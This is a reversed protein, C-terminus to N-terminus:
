WFYVCVPVGEVILVNRLLGRHMEVMDASYMLLYVIKEATEWKLM